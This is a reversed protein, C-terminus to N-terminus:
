SEGGASTMESLGGVEDTVESPSRTTAGVRQPSHHLSHLSKPLVERWVPPNCARLSGGARTSSPFTVESVESGHRLGKLRLSKVATFHGTFHTIHTFHGRPPM